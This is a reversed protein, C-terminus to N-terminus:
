KYVRENQWIINKIFGIVVDLISVWLIILFKLLYRFFLEYFSKKWEETIWHGTGEKLLHLKSREISLCKFLYKIFWKKFFIFFIVFGGVYYIIGEWSEILISMIKDVSRLFFNLVQQCVSFLFFFTDLPFLLLYLQIENYILFTFM